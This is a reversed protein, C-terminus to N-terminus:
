SELAVYMSLKEAATALSILVVGVCAGSIGLVANWRRTEERRSETKVVVAGFMQYVYLLM